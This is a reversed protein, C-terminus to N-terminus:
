STVERILLLGAGYAKGTGVGSSQLDALRAEDVVTAAAHFVVWLHAPQDSIRRGRRVGLRSHTVAHLDLAGAVKRELWTSWQPESLPVRNPSASPKWTPCGILSATVQTGPSPTSVQHDAHRRAWRSALRTPELAQVLLLRPHPMAWLPRPDGPHSSTVLHHVLQTDDIRDRLEIATLTKGTM